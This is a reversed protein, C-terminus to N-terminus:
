LTVHCDCSEGTPPTTTTGIDPPINATVGAINEKLHTDGGIIIMMGVFTIMARLIDQDMTMTIVDRTTMTIGESTTTTIGKSMTTTIVERTM